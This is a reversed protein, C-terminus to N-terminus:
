CRMVGILNLCAAFHCLPKINMFPALPAQRTLGSCIYIFRIRRASTQLVQLNFPNDFVSAFTLRDRRHLCSCVSRGRASRKDSSIASFLVM